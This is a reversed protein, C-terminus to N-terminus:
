NAEKVTLSVFIPCHDSADRIDTITKYNEVTISEAMYFVHDIAWSYPGTVAADLTGSSNLNDKSAAISWTDAFGAQKMVTSSVGDTAANYDGTVFVTNVGYTAKLNKVLAVLQNAESRQNYEMTAKDTTYDYHTNVFIFSQKSVKDEFVAWSITRFMSKGGHPYSQHFTGDKYVESGCMKLTLRETKYFIPNWSMDTTATGGTVNAETYKSAILEGLPAEAERYFPDFEQFGIVDPLYENIKAAALDDRNGIKNTNWGNLVNFSMIKLNMYEEKVLLEAGKLVTELAASGAAMSLGGDLHSFATLRASADSYWFSYGGEYEACVYATSDKKSEEAPYDASGIYLPKKGTELKSKDDTVTLYNGSYEALTDRVSCAFTLEDENKCIITYESIDRGGLTLESVDYVRLKEESFATYYLMRGDSQTKQMFRKVAFELTEEKFAAIAVTDKQACIRWDNYKLSAYAQASQERNTKGVLIERVGESAPTADTYVRINVGTKNKIQERISNALTKIYDDCDASRIIRFESKEGDALFVRGSSDPASTDTPSPIDTDATNGKSCSVSCILCFSLILLITLITITKRSVRNKVLFDSHESNYKYIKM